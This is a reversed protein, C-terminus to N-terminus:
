NMYEIELAETWEPMQVGKEKKRSAEEQKKSPRKKKKRKVLRKKKGENAQNQGDVLDAGGAPDMEEMEEEGEEEVMEYESSEEMDEEEEGEASKGEAEVEAEVDAISGFVIKQEKEIHDANIQFMINGADNLVKDEVKAQINDIDM